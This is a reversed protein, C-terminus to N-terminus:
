WIGPLLRWRVKQAYERYGTLEKRLVSDELATRIVIIGIIVAVPLFAWPRGLFLLASYSLIGLVLALARKLPLPRSKPELQPEASSAM